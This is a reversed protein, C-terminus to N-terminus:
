LFLHRSVRGAAQAAPVPAQLLERIKRDLLHIDVPKVFHADFGAEWARRIDDEAGWGTVAIAIARELKEIRRVRQLFEYGNMGPLGIDALIVIQRAYCGGEADELEIEGGLIELAEEASGAAQVFYGLTRLTYALLKRTDRNDEVVLLSIEDPAPTEIRPSSPELPQPILPLEITVTGGRGPLALLAQRLPGGHPRIRGESIRSLDLLDDVLSSQLRISREIASLAELLGHEKGVTRRLLDVGAMMTALPNRLEHSLVSLFRDKAANAEQAATFLRMSDIAIAVRMALAEALSLDESTFTRKSDRTQFLGLGGLKRGRAALPMGIASIPGFTQLARHHAPDAACEALDEETIVAVLIPQASPLAWAPPTGHPSSVFSAASLGRLIEERAPDVHVAVARRTTGDEFLLDITCADAIEPVILRAMAELASEDLSSSLVAGVQSLFELRRRAREADGRAERETDGM